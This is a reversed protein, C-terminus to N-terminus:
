QGEDYRLRPETGPAAVPVGHYLGEGVFATYFLMFTTLAMWSCLQAAFLRWLATPLKCCFRKVQPLWACASKLMLAVRWINYPLTWLQCMKLCAWRRGPHELSIDQHGSNTWIEESVFFTTFVCGSFIILLLTFLCQEQGGLYQALWSKSWDISPLLYGICAGLGASLAYVSFAKRCAEGEPFLDSLLAELVTFCVQACSDLLSIGIVLFTVDMVAHYRGTFSALFSSYPIIILSLMVGFCLLWIFPRRRGYKSSWRDSASGILNVVLLGLVPGIGSFPLM